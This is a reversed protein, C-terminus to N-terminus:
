SHYHRQELGCVKCTKIQVMRTYNSNPVKAGNKTRFWEEEIVGGYESWQHRFIHMFRAWVSKLEVSM